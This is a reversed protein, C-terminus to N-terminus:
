CMPSAAQVMCSNRARSRRSRTRTSTNSEGDSGGGGSRISVKKYNSDSGASTFWAQLEGAEPVDPDVIVTSSNFTSLSRGNFDSLQPFLIPVRM